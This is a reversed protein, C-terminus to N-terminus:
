VIYGDGLVVEQPNELCCLEVFLSEDNCMHCSTGSDVIWSDRADILSASPVQGAVIATSKSGSISTDREKM